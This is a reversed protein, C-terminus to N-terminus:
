HRTNLAHGFEDHAPLGVAEKPPESCATVLIAQVASNRKIKTFNNPLALECVNQGGQRSASQRWIFHM